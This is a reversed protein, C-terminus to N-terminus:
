NLYALSDMRMTTNLQGSYFRWPFVRKDFHYTGYSSSSFTYDVDGKFGGDVISQSPERLQKLQISWSSSLQYTPGDVLLLGDGLRVGHDSIDTLSQLPLSV